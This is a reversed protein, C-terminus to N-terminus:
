NKICRIPLACEEYYTIFYVREGSLSIRTVDSSDSYVWYRASHNIDLYGSSLPQYGSRKMGPALLSFGFEDDRKVWEDVWREQAHLKTGATEMGGITELLIIWDQQYPTHWGEPCVEMSIYKSYLRGYIACSDLVDNYCYSDITKYNLNEAMWTQSEITV